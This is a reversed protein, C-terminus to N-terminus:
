MPWPNPMGMDDGRWEATSREAIGLCDNRVVTALNGVMGVTQVRQDGKVEQHVVWGKPWLTRGLFELALCRERSARIVKRMKVPVRVFKSVRLM